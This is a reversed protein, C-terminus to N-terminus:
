EREVTVYFVATGIKVVGGAKKTPVQAMPFTQWTAATENVDAYETFGQLLQHAFDQETGDEVLQELETRAMDAM